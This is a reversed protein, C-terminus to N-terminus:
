LKTKPYGELIVNKKEDEMLKLNNIVVENVLEDDV